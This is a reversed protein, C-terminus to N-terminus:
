YERVDGVQRRKQLPPTEGGEGGKGLVNPNLKRVWANVDDGGRGGPNEADQEWREPNTEIYERIAGLSRNDRIVHDYYSRQWVKAGAVGTMENVRKTSEYKFFGMVTGLTPVAGCEKVDGCFLGWVGHLHNPMLVFADLELGPYKGVLDFWCQHVVRGIESLVVRENKVEGFICARKEACITVFYGAPFSYDYGALRVSRRHHIQPDYPM